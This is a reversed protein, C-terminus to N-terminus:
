GAQRRRKPLEAARVVRLKLREAIAASRQSLKPIIETLPVQKEEEYIQARARHIWELSAYDWKEEQKKKNM